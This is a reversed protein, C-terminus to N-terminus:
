STDACPVDLAQVVIAADAFSSSMLERRALTKRKM